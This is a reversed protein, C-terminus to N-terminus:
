EAKAKARADRRIAELRAKSLSIWTEIQEPTFGFQERLVEAGSLFVAVSFEGIAKNVVKMVDAEAFVRPKEM